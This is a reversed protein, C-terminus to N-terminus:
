LQTVDGMLERGLIPTALRIRRHKPPPPDHELLARLAVADIDAVRVPMRLLHTIRSGSINPFPHRHPRHATGPCAIHLLLCDPVQLILVQLQQISADGPYGNM